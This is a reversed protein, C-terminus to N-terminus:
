AGIRVFQAEVTSGPYVIAFEDAPMTQEALDRLDQAADDGLGHARSTLMKLFVGMEHKVAWRDGRDLADRLRDLEEIYPTFDYSPYKKKLYTSLRHDLDDAWTPPSSPREAPAGSALLMAPHDAAFGHTPPLLCCLLLLLISPSVPILVLRSPANM